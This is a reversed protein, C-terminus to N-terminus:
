SYSIPNTVSKSFYVAFNTFKQDLVEKLLEKTFQESEYHGIDAILIKGDADFFEHYKFDASIYADAGNAIAIPLLFSGAGGCLAVKSIKRSLSATHRVCDTNMMSKVHSLFAKSEMPTPLTGIMGAGVDQNKNKLPTLYYAVEEYPHAEILANLIQFELHAPFIVEARIEEVQELKGAEGVHPNAKATPQFTGIGTIRFSCNQYNGINGGGAKHIADMVKDVENKPVFTVMKTLINSKPALIKLNKLGLKEGMKKNVGDLVNDLNTHIAYIAIDNKIAKIITKEVYTKGTLSKLGKFIIPHHAVILNCKMEIAEDVVTETCDLSVLIGTVTWNKDGTLLGANDYSEQYAIPALQELHSTVDKIKITDM